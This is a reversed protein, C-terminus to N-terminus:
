KRLYLRFIRKQTNSSPSISQAVAVCAKMASNACNLANGGSVIGTVQGILSEPHATQGRLVGLVKNTEARLELLVENLEPIWLKSVLLAQDFDVNSLLELAERLEKEDAPRFETGTSKQLRDTKRPVMNWHGRHALEVQRTVFELKERKHNDIDRRTANHITRWAIVAAILATLASAPLSGLIREIVEITEMDVRAVVQLRSLGGVKYVIVM